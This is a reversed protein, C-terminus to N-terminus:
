VVTLTGKMSPHLACFFEYDGPALGETGRHFAGGFLITADIDTGIVTFTHTSPDKNAVSVRSGATTVLCRPAFKFDEITITFRAEDTLDDCVPAPEGPVSVSPAPTSAPTPSGIVVSSASCAVGGLGLSLVAAIARRM